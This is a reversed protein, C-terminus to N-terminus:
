GPLLAGKKDMYSMLNKVAPPIDGEKASTFASDYADLSMTGALTDSSDNGSPRLFEEFKAMAGSQRALDRAQLVHTTSQWSPGLVQRAILKWAATKGIGPM